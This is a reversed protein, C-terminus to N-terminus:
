CEKGVRREESRDDSVAAGGDVRTEVDDAGLPMLGATRVTDHRDASEALVFAAGVRTCHQHWRDPPDDPDLLLATRAVNVVGFMAALSWVRKPVVIGVVGGAPVRAAAAAGIAAHLADFEAYTVVREDDRVAPRDAYLPVAGRWYARFTAVGSAAEGM